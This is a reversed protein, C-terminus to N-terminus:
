DNEDHKLDLIIFTFSQVVSQLIVRIDITTVPSHSNVFIFQKGGGLGGCEKLRKLQIRMGKMM